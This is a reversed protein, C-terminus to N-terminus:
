RGASEKELQEITKGTQQKIKQSAESWSMLQPAADGYMVNVPEGVRGTRAFAHIQSSSNGSVPLLVTRPQDVPTEQHTEPSTTPGPSSSPLAPGTHSLALMLVAGFVALLGAGGVYSAVIKFTSDTAAAAAKASVNLTSPWLTPPQAGIPAPAVSVPGVMQMKGLEALMKAPAAKATERVCFDTLAILGVYIGKTKLLKQLEEVGAKIKRSITAPSTNLETALDAQPTGQLFHRVLLTRTPEALEILAQDVYPSVEEWKPERNLRAENEKNVWYTKERQRRSLESRKADIALHTASRHLWGGLSHTVLKPQRMLRFFTEQSVDQARAEDNLIRNSASFVVGAYRRVIEAFIAPDGSDTFDRLLSLDSQQTQMNVEAPSM